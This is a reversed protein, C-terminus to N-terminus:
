DGSASDEDDPMSGYVDPYHRMWRRAAEQIFAAQRRQREIVPHVTFEPALEATDEWFRASWPYDLRERYIDRWERNVRYIRTPLDGYMPQPARIRRYDTSDQIGSPTHPELHPPFRRKGRDREPDNDPLLQRGSQHVTVTFGCSGLARVFARLSTSSGSEDTELRSVTSRNLGSAAALERQSLDAVARAARLLGSVPIPSTAPLDM